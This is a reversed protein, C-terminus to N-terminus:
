KVNMLIDTVKEVTYSSGGRDETHEVMMAILIDQDDTPYGVFWGNEQGSKDDGTLKLEATGTKGSIPFDAEDAKKATGDTVVERLTDQLMTAHDASLLNEKWIQSTEESMLLTPKVMNGENLIPTYTLALHIASMELEGQGYSSNALLVEDNIEGTSSVTSSTIPYEYPLEEGFGFNNLGIIFAESGMEVGMTAFYINDSRVLADRLDVPGNSESVRRVEYNGWGEGNSWTLGNIEIGEDPIISGNQLGIAATVPKIVSGPAFTASFRNLLPKQENNQLGEWLNTGTGYLIENPDFAPSSVLALTEGTKPDIAAANGADGDYSNYIREQVNVDVTLSITEGDKVTKEALIVSEEGEKKEIIIKLGREGKLREEYWQELGRKGIVDNAGYEGPEKDELDEATVQGVYGVLHAAAEGAPYIRGTGNDISVGDIQLLKDRTEESYIDKIPVLLHPEIWGAGLATDIGDVSIGLLDAIEEKNQKPNVGLKEPVIGVEFIPGNMALPMKNRDLIEGRKPEVSQIRIKGGDKIEPFIFGPDWQVFWNKEQEEGKQILTADYDFAIPGALSEMEVKFPLTATGEEMAIELEDENLKEFTVKLDSIDLDEYIKAYRDVFEETPYTETSKATLMGYMEAFEENNWQKVYTDFRENPTVEDESCATLFVIFIISLFLTIKKM